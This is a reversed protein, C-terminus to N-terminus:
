MGLEEFSNISYLPDGERGQIDSLKVEVEYETDHLSSGGLGETAGDIQNGKAFTGKQEETPEGAPSAVEDAWSTKGDAPSFSDSAPNLASPQTIRDALSGSGSSM